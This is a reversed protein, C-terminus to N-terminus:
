SGARWRRRWQRRRWDSRRRPREGFGNGPRGPRGRWVMPRMRSVMRCRSGRTRGSAMTVSAPLVLHSITSRARCFMARQWNKPPWGHGALLLTARRFRVGTKKAPAGPRQRRIRRGLKGRRRGAVEARPELADARADHDDIRLFVVADHRKGRVKRLQRGGRQRGGHRLAHAGGGSASPGAGTQFVHGTEREAGVIQPAFMRAVLVSCM